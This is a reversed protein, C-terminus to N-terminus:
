GSWNEGYVIEDGPYIVVSLEDGLALRTVEARSPYADVPRCLIELELEKEARELTSPCTLTWDYGVGRYIASASVRVDGTYVGDGDIRGDCDNDVGNWDEEAGPFVSADYDDCDEDADVGDLDRDVVEDASTDAGETDDLVEVPATSVCALWSWLKLQM